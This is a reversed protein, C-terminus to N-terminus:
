PTSEQLHALQAELAALLEEMREHEHEARSLRANFQGPLLAMADVDRIAKYTARIQAKLEVAREDHLPPPMEAQPDGMGRRLVQVREPNGLHKAILTERWEVPTLPKMANRQAKSLAKATAFPDLRPKKNKDRFVQFKAQRATGYMGGGNHADEAYVLAELYTVVQGHENEESVERIIPVFDKAVRIQAYPTANMERVVESVGEYSLGTNPKGDSGKFSYILKESPKGMLADLIQSEDAADMARYVDEPVDPRVALEAAPPKFEAADPVVEEATGDVVVAEEDDPKVKSKGTM